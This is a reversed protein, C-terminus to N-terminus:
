CGFNPQVVSVYLLLTEFFTKGGIDPSDLLVKTAISVNTDMIHLGTPVLQMAVSCM